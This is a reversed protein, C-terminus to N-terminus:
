DDPDPDIEDELEETGRFLTPEDPGRHKESDFLMMYGCLHCVVPVMFLVNAEPDHRPDDKEYHDFGGINLVVPRHDAYLSQEAGCVHCATLGFQNIRNTVERVIKRRFRM